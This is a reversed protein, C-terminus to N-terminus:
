GIAKGLEMRCSSSIILKCRFYNAAADFELFGLIFGTWNESVSTCPRSCINVGRCKGGVTPCEHYLICSKPRRRTEFISTFKVKSNLAIINFSTILCVIDTSHNFLMLIQEFELYEVTYSYNLEEFKKTLNCELM